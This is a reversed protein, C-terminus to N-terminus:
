KFNTLGVIVEIELIVIAINLKRVLAAALRPTNEGTKM